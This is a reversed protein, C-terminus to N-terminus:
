STEGKKIVFYGSIIMVSIIFGVCAGMIMYKAMTRFSADKGTSPPIPEILVDKNAKLKPLTELIDLAKQTQDLRSTGDPLDDLLTERLTDEGEQIWQEYLSNMTDYYEKDSEYQEQRTRINAEDTRGGIYAIMMGVVAGIVVFLGLLKRKSLVGKKVMNLDILQNEDM